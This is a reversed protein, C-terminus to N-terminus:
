SDVCFFLVSVFSLLNAFTGHASFDPGRFVYTYHIRSSAAEHLFTTSICNRQKLGRTVLILCQSRQAPGEVRRDTRQDQKLVGVQGMVDLDTYGAASPGTRNDYHFVDLHRVELM